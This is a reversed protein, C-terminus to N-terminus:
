PSRRRKKGLLSDIASRADQRVSRGDLSNIDSQTLEIRPAFVTDHFADIAEATEDLESAETSTAHGKAHGVPQPSFRGCGYLMQGRLCVSVGQGEPRIQVLFGAEPGISLRPSNKLRAALTEFGAPITDIKAPIPIRLHRLVTPYFNLVRHFAAEADQTRGLRRLCDANWALIRMRLLKPEKPLQVLLREAMRNAKAWEGARWHGEATLADFFLNATKRYHKEVSKAEDIAKTMVGAGLITLMDGGFWPMVNTFYPRTTRMLVNPFTALRRVQRAAEWRIKKVRQIEMELKIGPWLARASKMETLQEVRANAVSWALINNVTERIETAVSEMGMRDPADIIQEVRTLADEFAGLAYLLEVFRAKIVTENQIRMDPARPTARLAKLSALSKQFEGFVLYMAALQAHPSTPCDKQRAKLATQDHEITRAFQFTRRAGLALNMAIVCSERRTDILGKEGWTYSARRNGAEEEVAMLGNLARERIEPREHGILSRGITRAEDFRGLKLLPWIRRATQKPQYYQDYEDLASLQADRRDMLGLFYQERLLIRKHWTKAAEKAPPAGFRRLLMDKSRRILYLGRALNGEGVAHVVGLVFSALFTDKIKRSKEILRRADKFEGRDLHVLARQEDPTEALPNAWITAPPVGVIFLCVIMKMFPRNM